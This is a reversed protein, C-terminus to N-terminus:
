VYCPALDYTIAFLSLIQIVGGYFRSKVIAGDYPFFFVYYM